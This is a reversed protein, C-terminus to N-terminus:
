YSRNIILLLPYIYTDRTYESVVRKYVRCLNHDWIARIHLLFRNGHFVMHIYFFMVQIPIRFPFM